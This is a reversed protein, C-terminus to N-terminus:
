DLFIFQRRNLFTQREFSVFQVRQTPGPLEYGLMQGMMATKGDSSFSIKILFHIIKKM